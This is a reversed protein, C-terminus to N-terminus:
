IGEGVEDSRSVNPHSQDISAEQNEPVSGPHSGEQVVPPVGRHVLGSHTVLVGEILQICAIAIALLFLLLMCWQMSVANLALHLHQRHIGEVAM